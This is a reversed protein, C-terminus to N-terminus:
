FFFVCVVACVCQIRGRHHTAYVVCVCLSNACVPRSLSFLSSSVANLNKKEWFFFVEKNFLLVNIGGERAFWGNHPLQDDVISSVLHHNTGPHARMGCM